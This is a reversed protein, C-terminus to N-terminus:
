QSEQMEKRDKQRKGLKEEKSRGKKSHCKRTRCLRTEADSDKCLTSDLKLFGPKEPGIVRNEWEEKVRVDHSPSDGDQDSCTQSLYPGAEDWEQVQLVEAGSQGRTFFSKLKETESVMMKMYAATKWIKNAQHGHSPLKRTRRSTGQGLVWIHHIPTISGAGVKADTNRPDIRLSLKWSWNRRGLEDCKLLTLLEIQKVCIRRDIQPM